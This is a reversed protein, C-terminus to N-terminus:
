KLFVVVEDEHAFGLTRRVEEELRDADLTEGRLGNVRLQLHTRENEITDLVSTLAAQRETLSKLQRVSFDGSFAGLSFYGTLALGIALGARRQLFTLIDAIRTM